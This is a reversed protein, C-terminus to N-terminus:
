DKNEYNKSRGEVCSVMPLINDAYKRISGSAVKKVAEEETMNSRGESSFSLNIEFL